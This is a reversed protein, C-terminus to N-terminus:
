RGIFGKEGADLVQMEYYYLPVDQPVPYNSRISAAQDEAGEGNHTITLGEIKLYQMAIAGRESPRREVDSPLPHKSRYLSM